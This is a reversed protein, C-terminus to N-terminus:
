HGDPVFLDDKGLHTLLKPDKGMQRYLKTSIITTCAGTDPVATIVHNPKKSNLIVIKKTPTPRSMPQRAPRVITRTTRTRRIHGITPQFFGIQNAQKKSRCVRAYHNLKGCSDCTQGKAPCTTGPPHSPHGCNDCDPDDGEESPIRPRPRQSANNRHNNHNRNTAKNQPGPTINYVHEYSQPSSTENRNTYEDGSCLAHAMELSPEPHMSILKIRMKKNRIGGIISGILQLDMSDPKIQPSGCPKQHAHLVEFGEFPEHPGQAVVHLEERDAFFGRRTLLPGQIADLVDDTTKETNKDNNLFDSMTGLMDLSMLTRLTAMQIIATRLPLNALDSFDNWQQRWILFDRLSVNGPLKDM